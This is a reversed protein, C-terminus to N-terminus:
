RAPALDFTATNSRLRLLDQQGISPNFADFTVGLRGRPPLAYYESLRITTFVVQGPVLLTFDARSQEPRVTLPGLYEVEQGDVSVAFRRTDMKGHRMALANWLLAPGRGDNRFGLHVDLRAPTPQSLRIRAAIVHGAGSM